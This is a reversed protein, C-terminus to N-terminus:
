RWDRWKLMPGHKWMIYFRLSPALKCAKKKIDVPANSNSRLFAYFKIVNVQRKRIDAEVDDILRYSNTIVSGLYVEEKKNELVVGDVTIPLHDNIDASNVCLVACKALQLKIFNSKCYTMLACLKQIALSKSTALLLIDDAHMLLHVM